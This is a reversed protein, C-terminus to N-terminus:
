CAHSGVAIAGRECREIKMKRLFGPLKAIRRTKTV